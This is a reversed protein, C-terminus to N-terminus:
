REGLAFFIREKYNKIGKIERDSVCSERAKKEYDSFSSIVKAPSGVVVSNDAIDKTVVSGAGIIVNSGITVGPLIISNIGIFVDNGIKVRGYKQRRYGDEDRILWTSGDHTLIRVDATITVRDGVEILFPETGRIKTYIRCGSGVRVGRYRAYSVGGKVYFLLYSYLKDIVKFFLNSKMM